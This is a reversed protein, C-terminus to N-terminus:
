VEQEISPLPQGKYTKHPRYDSGRLKAYERRRRISERAKRAQKRQEKRKREEEYLKRGVEESDRDIWKLLHGKCLPTKGTLAMYVFPTSCDLGRAADIGNRFYLVEGTSVNEARIM